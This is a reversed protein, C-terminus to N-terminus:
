KKEERPSTFRGKNDRGKTSAHHEKFTEATPRADEDIAPHHKRCLKYKVGELDYEHKALRACGKVHCNHHRYTAIIAVFITAEGIDSGFGSFFGYYPGSERVTGTHVEIWWFLSNLWHM